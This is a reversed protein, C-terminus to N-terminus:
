KRLTVRRRGVQAVWAFGGLTVILGLLAGLNLMPVPLEARVLPTNDSGTNNSPNPDPTDSAVTATNVIPNAGAYAKPVALKLAITATAGSALTPRTCRVSGGNAACTWGDGSASVFTLGAPLPDAVVVNTAAGPGHNTVTLTWVIPQGERIVVGGDDKVLALDAADGVPVDVTSSCHSAQPCTPDGSAITATNAISATGAAASTPTVPIVFAVSAGPALGAAVTCTVTQGAIACGAPMTGPALGAPLPDEITAPGTTAARGTNTVTLTYSAPVGVTFSPASATKVITLEASDVPVDVTSSCNPDVGGGAPQPVPRPMPLPCVADGGGGVIATNTVTTGSAAATPTVPIVFQVSANPALGAPITCSLVQGTATCGAPLPSGLALVAPVDDLVGAAATTAIGGVNTVTLTYSASQGVAFAADSATKVIRLRPADVPTNTTSSCHTADAPCTPDGGGSVTATNTVTTGSAAATPTVPIVFSASAGVALGRPITCTVVQGSSACGAPVTGLTLSAPVTDSVTADATTASGGTNTVTLTYSAPQGVVFSAASATKVITLQPLEVPTNTTSACHTTDAPCTPDGGGSVTATNTLTQGSAAATPTVPITFSVSANVALGAAISCTVTQGAAVCGAPLPAGITLDAPIPDNVTAIRTTAATGTNTVTLTYSAPVGVAFSSASATKVITLRPADVPTTVSGNCRAPPNPAGVPCSPDGGGRVTAVNTVSLGSLAATPTVPIAFSVSTGTALGVAITCNVVQDVATCGAPLTGITLGTPVTDTVATPATTAATGTNTVTLTYTAQVGVVFSEPTATKVIQLQPASANDTTTGTCHSQAPCTPDGGDHATANNTLSQGNAAPQPTVPITYSVSTGPSMGAPIACTVTQGAATCDIPLTGITLLSPIADVITGALTDAQGNNTVTIVYTSQVGVVFSGQLVKTVDLRPANVPTTTTSTCHTADAPCTTDGGGQVTATNVAPNATTPAVAITVSIAPANSGPLLVASTSCNVQTTTSASCDWGAATIPLTATIGTPLPDSVTIAGVTSSSGTNSVQLGYTAPQGVAFAGPTATKVITLRPAGGDGNTVTSTVSCPPATCIAGPPPTATATNVITGTAGLRATGDVTITLSEGVGLRVNPLDIANTTGTAGTGAAGTDCDATPGTAAGNAACSWDAVAVSAPVTDTVRIGNAPSPGNNTVMIRYDLSQGPLYTGTPTATKAIALNVVEGVPVDVTSSCHTAAPCTADGGGSVTATNTVSPMAAATPTVPITFAVNAGVALGTPITCTVVQGSNACGAPMTGLTLSAPVTDSVTADATTAASGTNTVTLTYSAAVGVAFNSASATKVITLQPANVPTNTTSTCHTADAPCTPDGGGSVTATNSVTTGSAAPTPTVPITFAVNAGVALGTPIACTVLQGSAACGAPMTGLTLSAPVTDSVTAGATTAASGTNTVTLTYSAPVGVVFNSASATKVVTLRPANVPVDVTSTCQTAGPCSPDGGGQVTATNSVTTGSAAATPTVPIVFNVPSGTALGAAITCTVVQGTAACGAPLPTGITLTAPVTDSVTADRTTAATGTNTVTLTYSAPVNVVFNSASATKVVTLQPANVPTSTTSACHTADAPCTPDGGGSVTATNAITTGNAAATAMVPITFSASAGIALGTPITCTVVQGSNTCGAPMTGPTLTSALTDSVTAAATTAATGTNTVTLTYTAEVGVVFSPASATKVITLQPANVPTNTTSSCHTTDTPCTPDGGGQVTATNALTQGNAAATPTVHITFSTTAGAALPAAITCTVTQGAITCGPASDIVLDAPIVDTVTADGTTAVVGNNTVQLTYSAPVGVVFSAGSASKVIDLKPANVNTTTTGLCRAPLTAPDAGTPCSPDGGGTATANNTVSLGNLSAQPTVPIAFSVPTNTALPAAVTCTVVQSAATCDAPLTGIVLGGPITDSVTTTATTAATGTNTLTLTYTAQVGVVFPNPTATKVLSLQPADVTDTTTGTCHEAQPCTPDGGGNAVASNTMAQGSVSAQPTIQTDFSISQGPSLGAPIQCTVVQAAVTCGSSVTGITLGAPITDTVTGALTDATGNNTVQITYTSSVGVVLNGTLTKTVDLRPANVPTTTTSTCHTADAPCTTDGGGQVTAVNVAPNATAPAVAVTVNIVPANSGPLLVANTSCNVQTATSTACDWGTATIPLAATLGAPLPDSVSITGVTSSTGTNSVALSYTAPQGVAFSAPTATKVITLQPLGGDTNTTTDTATCPPTTCTAGTPPTATATNVIAGTASLQATGDVTITLSEGVGLNVNALNIANTTGSAGTGAAGSDCDAAAGTAACTWGTVTVNAPVTDTVRMGVAPSTGTNTVLITYDLSQGPLYTGSPTATKAITLDVVLDVPVDVTSSCPTAGPCTPDGGGSVTATNAVNPMAATTPTVPIVFATNADVALGAAITCTVVQGSNSCGAPMTGLTLSAPVTDSVTTTATTAATGTNTVTLTFSAAVGVTFRPASATKVVTLAPALVPTDTTSSCHTAAPCSPDGGGSVTATNSVTTGSAAATPTVPIVFATNANVALGAEITCTVVQGSNTCGAPMTGLTLSAPVTDSVTAAATTAATGTNTVTLTYSAPVGVVFNAASATKAITLQAANTPTNTTSECHAAGPCTPDGGGSVQATNVVTTGNAAATPTVPIVFSVDDNVALGTAITCTVTQGNATCGAPMTGLTLSAPVTDSVTAGATTAATGTNTVTLTYSAPVGVVFSTASAAKAITLQPANTPTDTTSTCRTADAPCTPDGGGSVTATNTVTTGNAAATPTVPIVFAVDDNVALGAAITCTVVQGSAACGAPMTGLTLSAPVTDTVTAAATTAATGTNTVTLTYASAVGVVFSTPASKVLTLQPANVPTNTTSECRATEAPCTADGGGSVTATNTVTTGSAAATPTVPIVFASSAGIALGAAITCTVVQGSNACGSPMTGLTLTAPVTDTVVAGATTAATGTNTATLTYSAPVGVVFNAASATKVLTLQPANVPTSTTPTCRTADAPCTPDGGGTASANNVLTLGNAAATPTVPIVFSTAAGIALGAPVTCTVVQGNNQCDTPMAGLTLTSPVNDSVTTEATTAATGTNRVELVYSAPVGVVFNSASPTKTLTLQPANVPTSTTSTCHTTDAPCTPDGGGSVTATNAITTGNAAATATVPIVFTATAGVALGTPITCTVVQGSNTCGAPMTGPTLTSALTDSVTAAATTAATGTNTVTLTYAAPVNIVFSPASATKVITLQPANVPTNTTSSCHTTDTPCTPDGGGQVTATNALTQGNAAATPTVHITFSTTAGAALPAAITCTVTQGAITCGPASDIVLDAPIVDTVTADGTTAVVGNNTVQLTYSAPVGVVFSAGSASKVIDLKPANVNTTTTGLCRAPLTAPDAGTPCSPDGGGTATANNTVSLGNLSAQPTVPIAFSVPTNTALPAAVTCTVVQSAATCDAPLTGIVLGGPITDSVTTTATTAATGTNTLTLTYTAQVGVVFPNPTATKVLSLQPADVTDTTTGTCHEAQPCTPDGGGNAVASNTMAQGSVSAQPTIQTEFSISQGPSLGAPIQCTVVQAAVTCGSSVTGITLGAPITDTVTGALTDATGNNTVQITYTSSVGVVLNGTLTKTVDLRPANVPTTTTSTCHTADAPCTTDGGGQVTAVNVAPNATAPAVAVTVNIVPANSGPLLVANTSCNVQTATSTACDWGTATIPLAATLGAPLPDSVSITGVTSSTGTNSVALSYTAPQGVAFSAPTATKVITLQPAGSDTNTVTSSRACPPTTCTAGAPPTATATNVIDGTASLQATGTVAITLSGGSVLSVSALNITNGTGTAGTGAAATDCDNGAGSTSCSWNAVAVTAPVTDTVSIGDAASAGNNTVTITYNLSEGPLYTAAPTATKTVALNVMQDVPVNVTSSCRAAAPCTADGGGSAQATNDVSPMAAATPTVPIVFAASANVALGAAITCTVTQGNATCDAPMAGLTLSAPVTDTVVTQATTAVTGSNTVTLTFSAAVGVTFRPTSTTKAVTLQPAVVRTNTYTCTTATASASITLPRGTAGSALTSGGTCQVIADYSAATAGGGFTEAPLTIVDGARVTVATGTTATPATSAFTANNTGGTTTATATHGATSGAAWTKALTLQQSRRTNTYTCVAANPSTITLTNTQQGNTGSLTHGGTCALTTTYNAVNTGGEAPLTVVDGVTVVVAAGSNAATPATAAFTATNNTGGTTAGITVQDGARSDASWAKALQLTAARRNVFGCIIASNPLVRAAPITYTRTATNYTLGPIPVNGNNMDRCNDVSNVWGAGPDTETLTVAVNSGSLQRVAGNTWANAAAAITDGAYGNNGTFSFTGAATAFKAAQLTPVRTNVFGCIIASNPLVRAAPITYTRTAANYTLGPIPASGNNVDRCTDVSNVWGAGPDAETLTVAVNPASLQRVAGNTWANAAAAITDGPYGNNGTFSFTGAATAFKAAQLTPRRVTNTYTCVAANTSNITLTNAQQGNTGSLTHGGTCALTTTYNAVNPGGEAPLTVVSGVNIAVAAGSNAAAPATATFAVTNNTGGTTAGITVQNGAINAGWAKALQLTAQDITASACRAGDNGTSAPGTSMLTAAPSAAGTDVRFIRGSQNDSGYLFGGPGSYTAGFNTNTTTPTLGAIVGLNTVTGNGSSGPSFRILRPRWPNTRDVAVRYFAGNIWSWDASNHGAPVLQASGSRVVTAYTASNRDALDIAVWDNRDSSSLWLRGSDDFDGVNYDATASVGAPRGLNTLTLDSSVRMLRNNDVDWGYFYNDRTNFGVGNLRSTMNGVSQSAGSALNVRTVNGGSGSAGQFLYAFQNCSWPIDAASVAGAM